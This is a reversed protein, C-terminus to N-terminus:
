KKRLKKFGLSVLSAARAISMKELDVIGFKKGFSQRTGGIWNVLEYHKAVGAPLLSSQKNVAAVVPNSSQEKAM